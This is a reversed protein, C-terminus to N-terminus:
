FNDRTGYQRRRDLLPTSNLHLSKNLATAHFVYDVGPVAFETDGAIM